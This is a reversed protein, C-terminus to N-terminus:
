RRGEALGAPLEVPTLADVGAGRYDAVNRTVLADAGVKVACAAQVADEFDALGLDLAHLLRDQDM